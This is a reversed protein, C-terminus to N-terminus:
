VVSKRDSEEFNYKNGKRFHEGDESLEGWAELMINELNTYFDRVEETSLDRPDVAERNGDLWEFMAKLEPLLKFVEREDLNFTVVGNRPKGRYNKYPVTKTYL